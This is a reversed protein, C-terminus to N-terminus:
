NFFLPLCIQIARPKSNLLIVYLIFGVKIATSSVASGQVLNLRSSRMNSLAQSYSEKLQLVQHIKGQAADVERQM